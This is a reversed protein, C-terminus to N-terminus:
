CIRRAYQVEQIYKETYVRIFKGGRSYQGGADLLFITSDNPSLQIKNLFPVDLDDASYVGRIDCKVDKDIDSCNM